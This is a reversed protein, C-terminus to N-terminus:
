GLLRHVDVRPRVDADGQELPVRGGREVPAVQASLWPAPGGGATMVATRWEWEPGADFDVADWPPGLPQGTLDDATYRDEVSGDDTM